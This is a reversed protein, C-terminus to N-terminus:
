TELGDDKDHVLSYFSVKVGRVGPVRSGLWDGQGGSGPMYCSVLIRLPCEHSGVREGSVKIRRM